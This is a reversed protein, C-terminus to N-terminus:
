HMGVINQIDAQLIMSPTPIGTKNAFEKIVKSFATSTEKVADKVNIAYTADKEQPRGKRSYMKGKHSRARGQDIPALVTLVNSPQQSTAVTDTDVMASTVSPMIQRQVTRLRIVTTNIVKLVRRSTSAIRKISIIQRLIGNKQARTAMNTNEFEVEFIHTCDTFKSQKAKNRKTRTISLWM